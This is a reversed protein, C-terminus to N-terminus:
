VHVHVTLYIAKHLNNGKIPKLAETSDTIHLLTSSIEQTSLPIRKYKGKLLHTTYLIIRLKYLM